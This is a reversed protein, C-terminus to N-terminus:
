APKWNAILADVEDRKSGGWGFLQCMRVYSAVSPLRTGREWSSVVTHYCSTYGPVTLADALGKQTLGNEARGVRIARGLEEAESM